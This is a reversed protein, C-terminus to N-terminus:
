VLDRESTDNQAPPCPSLADAGVVTSKEIRVGDLLIVSSPMQYKGDM